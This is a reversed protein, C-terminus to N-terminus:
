RLSISATVLCRRCTTNDNFRAAIRALVPGDCYRKSTTRSDIDQLNRAVDSLVPVDRNGKFPASAIQYSCCLHSQEPQGVGFCDSRCQVSGRRPEQDVPILSRRLLALILLGRRPQAGLAVLALADAFSIPVFMPSHPRAHQLASLLAIDFVLFACHFPLHPCSCTPRDESSRRAFPLPPAATSFHRHCLDARRPRGAAEYM